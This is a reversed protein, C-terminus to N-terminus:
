TDASGERYIKATAIRNCEVRYFGAIDDAGTAGDVLFEEKLECAVSDGDVVMNEITLKPSMETFANDFFNALEATGRFRDSGTVWTADATFCALLRDLDHANFGAVHERMVEGPSNVEDKALPSVHTEVVYHAEATPLRPRHAMGRCAIELAEVRMLGGVIVAVPSPVAM